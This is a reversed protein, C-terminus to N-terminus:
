GMSRQKDNSDSTPEKDSLTTSSNDQKEDAQESEKKPKSNGAKEAHPIDDPHPADAPKEVTHSPHYDDDMDDDAYDRPQQPGFGHETIEKAESDIVDEAFPKSGANGLGPLGSTNSSLKLDFKRNGLKNASSALHQYLLKYEETVNSFLRATEDFHKNVDEKLSNLEEDKAKLEESLAKSRQSMGHWRGFFFAAVAIILLLFIIFPSSM